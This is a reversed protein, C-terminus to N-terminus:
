YQDYVKDIQAIRSKLESGCRFCPKFTRAFLHETVKIILEQEQHTVLDQKPREKFITWKNYLEETFCRQFRYQLKIKNLIEKRKDCGCDKGDIFLEVIKKIGTKELVTEVVDGLGKSQLNTFYEKYQKSRSIEPIEKLWEKYKKTRKDKPEKMKKYIINIDFGDNVDVPKKSLYKIGNVYIATTKM